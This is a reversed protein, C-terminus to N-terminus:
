SGVAKPNINCHYLYLHVAAIAGHTFAGVALGSSRLEIGPDWVHFPLFLEQFSDQLANTGHCM